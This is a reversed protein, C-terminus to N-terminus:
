KEDLHGGVIKSADLDIPHVQSEPDYGNHREKIVPYFLEKFTQETLYQTVAWTIKWLISYVFTGSLRSYCTV